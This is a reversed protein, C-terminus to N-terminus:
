RSHEVPNEVFCAGAFNEEIEYSDTPDFCMLQHLSSKELGIDRGLGASVRLSELVCLSVPHIVEVGVVDDAVVRFQHWLIASWFTPVIQTIGAPLALDGHIFLHVRPVAAMATAQPLSLAWRKMFARAFCSIWSRVPWDRIACSIAAPSNGMAITNAWLISFIFSCPAGTSHTVVRSGTVTDRCGTPTAAFAGCLVEAFNNMSKTSEFSPCCTTSAIPLVGDLGPMSVLICDLFRLSKGM